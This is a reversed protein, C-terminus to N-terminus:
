RTADKAGSGLTTGNTEPLLYTCVLGTLMLAGLMLGIAWSGYTALLTGALLPPLAGGVVGALNIALASGSYRYRTAFLEPIFAGTPGSGIGAIACMGLIAIVYCVRNGTDLLPMVVFAWPLCGSWGILMLRRRGVRDCLTASLSVSTISVLGALVGVSWIFTRSYGLHANAYMALYTNGMYAFGLGGLISGGALVIERRQLRLLERLPAKPVLNRAKEEVFVPTEDINLRVYLAIGILAASILFPLRWGWQMFAPSHEGISVNVGLFTLSSLVGATGGGLLTFMGYRGRKGAPAYEASLLASGAWEGGVAFGQLLRLAMLTLPAAAGIAATSPVLGVSVTSVAMISLTAILTKKRGLRDGFYGFVAAGLPRSLFATAFTGMSAIMAVTPSLHPFFVTPFVLAAATGYILFDYYEIASGVLCAAAVRRM